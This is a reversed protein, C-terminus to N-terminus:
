MLWGVLFQRVSQCNVPRGQLLLQFQQSSVAFGEIKVLKDICEVRNAWGPLYLTLVRKSYIVRTITQALIYICISSPLQAQWAGFGRMDLQKRLFVTLPHM